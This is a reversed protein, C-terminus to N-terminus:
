QRARLSRLTAEIFIDFGALGLGLAFGSGCVTNVAIPALARPPSM